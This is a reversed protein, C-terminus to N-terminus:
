HVVLLILMDDWVYTASIYGSMHVHIGVYGYLCCYM